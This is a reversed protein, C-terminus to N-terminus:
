FKVHVSYIFLYIHVCVCTQTCAHLVTLRLVTVKDECKEENELTSCM